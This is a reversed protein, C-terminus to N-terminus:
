QKVAITASERAIVICTVNSPLGIHARGVEPRAFRHADTNVKDPLIALRCRHRAHGHGVAGWACCRRGADCGTGDSLIVSAGVVGIQREQSGAVPRHAGGAARRSGTRHLDPEAHQLTRHQLVDFGYTAQAPSILDVLMNQM